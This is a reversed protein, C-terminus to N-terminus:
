KSLLLKFLNLYLSIVRILGQIIFYPIAILKLSVIAKLSYIFMYRIILHYSMSLIKNKYKFCFEADGKGYWYFKKIYSIFSPDHYCDIKTLGIGFKNKGKKHLRYYFDTDDITKTIKNDFKIHKLKLKNFIAPATGIMKKQGPLNHTLNYGENEAKTFFNLKIINIQAQIIDFNFKQMEILLKKIKNKKLIHDSDIM